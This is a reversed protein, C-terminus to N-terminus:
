KKKMAEALQQEAETIKTKFQNLDLSTQLILNKNDTIQNINNTVRSDLKEVESNVNEIRKLLCEEDCKNESDETPNDLFEKVYSPYKNDIEKKGHYIIITGILLLFGMLLFATVPKNYKNFKKILKKTLM